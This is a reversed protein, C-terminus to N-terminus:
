EDKRKKQGALWVKHAPKQGAILVQGAWRRKCHSRPNNEPTRKAEITSGDPLKIERVKYPKAAPGRRVVPRSFGQKPHLRFSFPKIKEGNDWKILNAIALGPTPYHYRTAGDNTDDNLNFDIGGATVNISWIQQKNEHAWIRLARAIMCHGSNGPTSTDILEKTIKLTLTPAFFQRERPPQVYGRSLRRAM